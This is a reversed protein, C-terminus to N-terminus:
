SIDRTSTEDAVPLEIRRLVSRQPSPAPLGLRSRLGDLEAQAAASRQMKEIELM